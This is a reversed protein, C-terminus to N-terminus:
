RAKSNNRLFALLSVLFLVAGVLALLGLVGKLAFLGTGLIMGHIPRHKKSLLGSSKAVGRSHVSKRKSM